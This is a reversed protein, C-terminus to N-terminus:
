FTKTNLMTVFWLLTECSLVIALFSYYLLYEFEQKRCFEFYFPFSIILYTNSPVNFYDDRYTIAFLVQRDIESKNWKIYYGGLEYMNNCIAFNDKKIVSYNQKTCIYWM